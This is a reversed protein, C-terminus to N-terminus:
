HMKLQSSFPRICHFQFISVLLDCTEKPRKKQSVLLIKFSEYPLEGLFIGVVTM